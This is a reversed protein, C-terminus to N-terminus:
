SMSLFVCFHIFEKNGQYFISIVECQTLFSFHGESARTNSCGTELQHCQKPLLYLRTPLVIDKPTPELAQLRAWKWNAREGKHKHNFIHGRLERSRSDQRSSAAVCRQFWSDGELVMFWNFWTKQLNGADHCKIVAFATLSLFGPHLEPYGEEALPATVRLRRKERRITIEHIFLGERALM